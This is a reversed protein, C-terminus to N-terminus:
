ICNLFDSKPNDSISTVLRLFSIVPHTGGSNLYAITSGDIAVVDSFSNGYGETSDVLYTSSDIASISNNKYRYLKVEGAPPGLIITDNSLVSIGCSYSSIISNYCLLTASENSIEFIRLINDTSNIVIKNRSLYKIKGSCNGLSLQTGIETFNSGDFVFRRILGEVGASQVKCVCITNVDISDISINTGWSSLDLANGIQSISTGSSFKIVKIVGDSIYCIRETNLTCIGINSGLTLSVDHGIVGNTYISGLKQLGRHLYVIRPYGANWITGVIVNLSTSSFLNVTKLRTLYSYKIGINSNGYIEIDALKCKGADNLWFGNATTDIEDGSVNFRNGGYIVGGQLVKIYQAFISKIFANTLVTYEEILIGAVNLYILDLACMNLKSVDSTTSWLSGSWIYIGLPANTSSYNVMYDGVNPSLTDGITIVGASSVSAGTFKAITTGALIGIGLYKPTTTAVVSQLTKSNYGKAIMRYLGAIEQDTIVKGYFRIEDFTAHAKADTKGFYFATTFDVSLSEATANYISTGNICINIKDGSKYTLCFHNNNENDLITTKLLDKGPMKLVLYNDTSDFYAFFDSSSYFIYRHYGADTISDWKRWFSISFRELTKGITLFAYSLEALYIANGSIGNVVQVNDSLSLGNTKGTADSATM